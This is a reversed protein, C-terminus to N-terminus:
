SGPTPQYLYALRAETLPEIKRRSRREEKGIAETILRQMMKVTNEWSSDRAKEIGRNLRDRDPAELAGECAAIFENANKAIYVLDSYQKIVDKVPTSV